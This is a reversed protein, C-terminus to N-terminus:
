MSRCNTGAYVTGAEDFRTEVRCIRKIVSSKRIRSFLGYDRESAPVYKDNKTVAYYAIGAAKKQEINAIYTPKLEQELSLIKKNGTLFLYPNSFDFNVAVLLDLTSYVLITVISVLLFALLYDM